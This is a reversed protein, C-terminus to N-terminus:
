IGNISARVDDIMWRRDEQWNEGKEMECGEKPMMNNMESMTEFEKGNMRRGVSGMETQESVKEKTGKVDTTGNGMEM